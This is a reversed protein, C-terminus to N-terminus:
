PQHKRAIFEQISGVGLDKAEFLSELHERNNVIGMSTIIGQTDILIAYPLKGVGFRRGVLESVVYPFKQLGQSSIYDRHRLEAGDSMLIIDLWDSEALSASKIAPLLSKCVPCDPALFFLLQARSRQAGGIEILSGTLTQVSLEPAKDGTKVRQNVALAGAPAVREHLVGIQRALAFCIVALILIIIWALIQSAILISM